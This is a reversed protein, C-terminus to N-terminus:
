VHARGIKLAPVFLHNLSFCEIHSRQGAVRSQCLTVNTLNEARGEQRRIDDFRDEGTPLRVVQVKVFQTLVKGQAPDLLTRLQSERRCVRTARSHGQNLLDRTELLEEAAVLNGAYM